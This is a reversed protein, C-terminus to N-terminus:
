VSRTVPTTARRAVFRGLRREALRGVGGLLHEAGALRELRPDGLPEVAGAVRELRGLPQQEVDADEDHGPEIPRSSPPPLRTSPM